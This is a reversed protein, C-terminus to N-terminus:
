WSVASARSMGMPVTRERKDRARSCSLRTVWLGSCGYALRAPFRQAAPIDAWGIWAKEARPLFIALLGFGGGRDGGVDDPVSEQAYVVM